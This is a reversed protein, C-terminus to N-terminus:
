KKSREIATKVFSWYSDVLYGLTFCFGFSLYYFLYGSTVDFIHLGGFVLTAMALLQFPYHALYKAFPPRSHYRLEFAVTAFGIFVASYCWIFRYINWTNEKVDFYFIDNRFIFILTLAVAFYGISFWLRATNIKEEPTNEATM